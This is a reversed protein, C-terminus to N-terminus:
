DARRATSILGDNDYMELSGASNIIYHEGFREDDLNDFRSGRRRLKTTLRSGDAFKRHMEYGSGKRVITITGGVYARSDRWVGATNNAPRAKPKPPPAKAAKAEATRILESLEADEGFTLWQAQNLAKLAAAHQGEDILRKGEKMFEAKKDLREQKLAADAEEAVKAAAKAEEVSRVAADRKELKQQHDQKGFALAMAVVLLAVAALIGIVKAM